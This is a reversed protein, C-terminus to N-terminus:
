NGNTCGTFFHPIIGPIPLIDFLIESFVGVRYQAMPDAILAHETHFVAFGVGDAFFPTHLDLDFVLLVAVALEVACSTPDHVSAVIRTIGREPIAAFFFALFGAVVLEALM